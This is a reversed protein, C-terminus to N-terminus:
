MDLTYESQIIHSSLPLLSSSSQFLHILLFIILAFDVHVHNVIQALLGQAWHTKDDDQSHM